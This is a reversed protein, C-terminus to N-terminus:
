KVGSTCCENAVAEPISSKLWCRAQPGQVGPKVYTFARCKEESACRAQCQAPDPQALAFSTYDGGYRDMGPELKPRAARAASEGRTAGSRGDRNGGQRTWTSGNPWVIRRGSDQVQGRMKWSEVVVEGGALRAPVKRGLHDTFTLEDGSQAITVKRTAHGEEFSWAGALQTGRSQPPVAPASPAPRLATVLGGGADGTDSDGAASKIGSTSGRRGSLAAGVSGKLECVGTGASSSSLTMTFANCARDEECIARCAETRAGSVTLVQYTKGTLQTDGLIRIADTQAGAAWVLVIAIATV